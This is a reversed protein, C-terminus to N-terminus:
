LEALILVCNRVVCSVDKKKSSKPLVDESMGLSRHFVVRVTLCCALLARAGKPPGVYGPCFM